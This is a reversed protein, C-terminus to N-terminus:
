CILFSANMRTKEEGENEQNEGNNEEIEGSGIFTRVFLTEVIIDASSDTQDKKEENGAVRNYEDSSEKSLREDRLMMLRNCRVRVVAM